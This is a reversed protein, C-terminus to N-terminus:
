RAALEPPEKFITKSAPNRLATPDGKREDMEKPSAFSM